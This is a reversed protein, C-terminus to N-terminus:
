FCISSWSRELAAVRFLDVITHCVVFFMIWSVFALLLFSGRALVISYSVRDGM